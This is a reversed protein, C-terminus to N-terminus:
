YALITYAKVHLIRCHKTKKDLGKKKRKKKKKNNFLYGSNSQLDKYLPTFSVHCVHGFGPVVSCDCPCVWSAALSKYNILSFKILTVHIWREEEENVALARVVSCDCPCKLCLMVRLQYTFIHNSNYTNLEIRWECISSLPPIVTNSLGTAPNKKIYERKSPWRRQHQMSPTSETTHM